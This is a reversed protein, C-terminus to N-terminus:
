YDYLYGMGVILGGVGHPKPEARPVVPKEEAM